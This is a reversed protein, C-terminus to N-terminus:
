CHGGAGNDGTDNFGLGLKTLKTNGNQLANAIAVAGDNGICTFVLDLATLTTNGNGCPTPL